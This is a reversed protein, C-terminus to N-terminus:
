KKRYLPILINTTSRHEPVTPYCHLRYIFQIFIYELFRHPDSIAQRSIGPRTRSRSRSRLEEGYGGSLLHIWLYFGHHRRWCRRRQEQSRQEEYGEEHGEEATADHRRLQQAPYPRCRRSLRFPRDLHAAHEVVAAHRALRGVNARGDVSGEGGTAGATRYVDRRSVVAHGRPELQGATAVPSKLKIPSDIPSPLSAPTITTIRAQRRTHSPASEKGLDCLPLM